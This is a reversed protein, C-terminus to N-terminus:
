RMDSDGAPQNGRESGAATSTEVAARMSRSQRPARGGAATAAAPLTIAMAMAMAQRRRTCRHQSPGRPDGLVM